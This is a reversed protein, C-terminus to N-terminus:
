RRTALRQLLATPSLGITTNVRTNIGLANHLASGLGGTAAPAAQAARARAKLARRIKMAGLGAAGGGAGAVTAAGLTEHTTERSDAPAGGLDSAAVLLQGLRGGSVRNASLVLPTVAEGVSQLGRQLGRRIVNPEGGVGQRPLSAYARDSSWRRAIDEHSAKTEPDTITRLYRRFAERKEHAPGKFPRSNADAVPAAALKIHETLTRSDLTPM